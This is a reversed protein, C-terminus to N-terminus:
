RCKWSLSVASFRAWPEARDHPQGAAMPATASRGRFAASADDSNALDLHEVLGVLGAMHRRWADSGGDPGSRVQRLLLHYALDRGANRTALNFLAAHTALTEPWRQAFDTHDGAELLALLKDLSENATHPQERAMDVIALLALRARRSWDDTQPAQDVRRRVEDLKGLRQAVAVLDLAPAVLNGGTQIRSDGSQEAKAVRQADLPSDDAVPPAPHTPTFDLALRLGAHDEGPLVWDALWAYRAEPPLAAARGHAFLASDPVHREAFIAGLARQMSGALAADRPATLSALQQETLREPWDGRLVVNRIRADTQRRDHYFSFTRPNEAELKRVYIATGNLSITATNKALSITARNWDAIKM